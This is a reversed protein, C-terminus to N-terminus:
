IRRGFVADDYSPQAALSEIYMDIEEESTFSYEEEYEYVPENYTEVSETHTDVTETHTESSTTTSSNDATETRTTEPEVYSSVAASDNSYSSAHSEANPDPLATGSDVAGSGDTTIDKVSDDINGNSDTHEDDIDTGHGLDGENVTGGNNIEDNADDIGEQYDKDSEEVEKELEEKKQDEEQQMEDAIEDAEREAEERAEENERDMEEQAEREAEAVAEEGAREVAEDRDTTRYEDRETYYTTVTHTSVITYTYPKLLFGNVIEQFRPLDSLDRHDDDIVYANQEYLYAIMVSRVAEYDAYKDNATTTLSILEAKELIDEAINCAGIDNLYDIAEQTLTHDVELNQFMIESAAVMPIISFKYPEVSARADAHAIGETRVEKTIPFDKYLEDYFAKVYNLREEGTTEKCRLFLEHYKEYFDRAQESHLVMDINVPNDRTELVHAGMLQLTAMQYANNLEYSDVEGGNLIEVLESKSFNNYVLTMAMVEDWTLAPRITIDKREKTESHELTVTEEIPDAFRINYDALFEGVSGLVKQQIKSQSKNLLQYFKHNEPILPEDADQYAVLSIDGFNEFGNTTACGAVFMIPLTLGIAALNKAYPNKKKNKPSIASSHGNSIQAARTTQEARAQDAKIKEVVSLGSLYADIRTSGTQNNNNM